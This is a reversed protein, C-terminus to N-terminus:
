PKWEDRYEPHDAYITALFGLVVQRAIQAVRRADDHLLFDPATMATVIERKAECEALVRHDCRPDNAPYLYGCVCGRQCAAADEGIRALLFDALALTSTAM